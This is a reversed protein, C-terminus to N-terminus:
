VFRGDVVVAVVVVVLVFVVVGAVVAAAKSPVVLCGCVLVVCDDNVALEIADAAFLGDVVVEVVVVVVANPGHLIQEGTWEQIGKNM